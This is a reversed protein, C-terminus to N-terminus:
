FNECHFHGTAYCEVLGERNHVIVLGTSAGVTLQVGLKIVTQEETDEELQYTYNIKELFLIIQERMMFSELRELKRM